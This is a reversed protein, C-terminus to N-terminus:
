IEVFSDKKELCEITLSTVVVKKRHIYICVCWAHMWQSVYAPESTCAYVCINYSFFCNRMGQFVCHHVVSRKLGEGPTLPADIM